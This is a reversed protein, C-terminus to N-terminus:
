VKDPIIAQLYVFIYRKPYLFIQKKHNLLFTNRKDLKALYKEEWMDRYIHLKM